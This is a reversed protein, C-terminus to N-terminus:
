LNCEWIKSSWFVCNWAWAPITPNWIANIITWWTWSTNDTNTEYIILSWTYTSLNLTWTYVEQIPNKQNDTIAWIYNWIVYPFRNLYDNWNSYTKNFVDLLAITNPDKELSTM